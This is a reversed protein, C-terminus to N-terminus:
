GAATPSIWATATGILPTEFGSIKLRFMKAISTIKLGALHTACFFIDSVKVGACNRFEIVQPRDNEDPRGSAHQHGINEGANMRRIVDKVLESGQGDITGGGTISIDQQGEALLLVYWRNRQYDPRSTSGLLRADPAIRLEVHSKLWVSGSLFDGNTLIVVGGGM